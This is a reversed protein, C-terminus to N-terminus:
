PLRPGTTNTGSGYKQIIEFCKNHVVLESDSPRASFSIIVLYDTRLKTKTCTRERTSLKTDSMNFFFM